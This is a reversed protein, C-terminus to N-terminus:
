SLFDVYQRTVYYDGSLASFHKRYDEAFALSFTAAFFDNGTLISMSTGAGPRPNLDILMPGTPSVIVQFCFAGRIGFLDALKLAMSDFESDRFIRCKVSVGSKVEIRERCVTWVYGGSQDCFADVTFEAGTIHEQVIYDDFSDLRPFEGDTGVHYVGKSGFGRRPKIVSTRRIHMDPMAIETKPSAIGGSHLKGFLRLKDILSLAGGPEAGILKYSNKCASDKIAQSASMLEDPLLPMFHWDGDATERALFDGFSASAAPPAQIFADAILAATVLHRPNVDVAVIHVDGGWNKRLSTIASFGTGSGAAGVIVKRKM